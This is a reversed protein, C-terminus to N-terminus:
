EETRPPNKIGYRNAIASAVSSQVQAKEAQSLQAEDGIEAAAQRSKADVETAPLNDSSDKKQGM